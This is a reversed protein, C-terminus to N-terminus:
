PRWDRHHCCSAACAGLWFRSWFAAGANVVVSQAEIGNLMRQDKVGSKRTERQEDSTILLELWNTPWGIELAQARAWCAQNKAWELPNAAGGGAIVGHVAEAAVVLVAKLEESMGQSRWVAEFDVFRGHKEADHALKAIAYPVVRSRLGGGQYWSQASVLSETERFM